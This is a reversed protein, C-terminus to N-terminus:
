KSCRGYDYIYDDYLKMWADLWKNKPLKSLRERVQYALVAAMETADLFAAAEPDETFNVVFDVFNSAFVEFENMDAFRKSYLSDMSRAWKEVDINNSNPIIVSCTITQKVVWDVINEDLKFKDYDIMLDNESFLTPQKTEKNITNAPGAKVERVNTEKPKGYQGIPVYNGGVQLPARRSAENYHPHTTYLANRKSSKAAKIEKIRALMEDEFDNSAGEIEIDLNFWQIYEKEVTFVRNGSVREDGWTPYTFEENVTQKLKAKRTVGATYKGANNVILSVFHNMDSGESQLTATDTGSFFTAMNNHSHILGQYIGVNLLEPHDVMYGMVDPSMDYETYGGTGEDMQFLDVCTITLSKNEFSGSVKYFLVGSWEVNHIERCLLRIKKEVEQPIVMKYTSQQHVLELKKEEKKEEM